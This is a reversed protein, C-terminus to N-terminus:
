GQAPPPAALGGAPPLPAATFAYKVHPQNLYWLILLHIGLRIGGFLFNFPELAVLSFLVAFGAFVVGIISLVIAVTRAWNRLSVLGYGTFGLLLALGLFFVGILIGAGALAASGMRSLEENQALIQALFTSGFIALLGFLGTIVTFIFYCIALITVGVPRPM